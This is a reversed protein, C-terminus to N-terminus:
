SSENSSLNLLNLLFEKMPFILKQCEYYKLVSESRYKYSMNSM